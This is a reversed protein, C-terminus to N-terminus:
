IIWLLICNFLNATKLKLANKPPLVKLYLVYVNKLM